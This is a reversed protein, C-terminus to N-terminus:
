IRKIKEHLIITLADNLRRKTNVKSTVGKKGSNRKDMDILNVTSSVYHYLIWFKWEDNINNYVIEM